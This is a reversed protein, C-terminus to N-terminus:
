IHAALSCGRNRAAACSLCSAPPRCTRSHAGPDPEAISNGKRRRQWPMPQQRRQAAVGLIAVRADKAHIKRVRLAQLFGYADTNDGILKVAGDEDIRKVITNVAGISRALDTLEDVQSFIAQKHPVTVNAGLCDPARLASIMEEMKGTPLPKAVYRTARVGRERLAANQM